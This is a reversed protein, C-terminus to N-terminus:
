LSSYTRRDKLGFAIKQLDVISRYETSFEYNVTGQEGQTEIYWGVGNQSWEFRASYM